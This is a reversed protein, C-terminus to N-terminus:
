PRLSRKWFGFNDQLAALVSHVRSRMERVTVERDVFKGSTVEQITVKHAKDKDATMFQAFLLALNIRAEFVNHILAELNEREIKRTPYGGKSMGVNAEIFRASDQLAAILADKEDKLHRQANDNLSAFLARVFDMQNHIRLVEENTFKFVYLNDYM